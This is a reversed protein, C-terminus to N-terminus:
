DKAFMELLAEVLGPITYDRAVKDVRIGIERATAATVPGICVVKATKITKRLNEEGLIKVFNKVTSSSTFTIADVRGETLVRLNEPSVEEAVAEYLGVETVEAGCSRLVEPLIDRAGRARPLLVRSGPKVRNKLDESLGEARFEEPIVDVILGRNRLAQATAPGIAAIQLGKLDRIDKNTKGMEEFFIKVGNVSTFVLWQFSEIMELSCYLLSMDQSPVVRIAPIEIAQGGFEEIMSSLRSAQERSRTVVIRRGFLPRNEFWMLENRLRVVEGVVLIAPPKLDAKEVKDEIDALVGTVVQQDPLTGWRIVACPTESSRGHMLLNHVINSLNEVGMLFVLTGVGTAIQEWRVSSTNKGPREHGTIIAFSSTMDRHTVPIGAYAPVAVASTIGPVVEFRVGNEKLYLAEEGGRGFVFPDGGKLRVVTKGEQAKEVLLRNIEQQPLTHDSSAKGVYILEAGDRAYKLIGPSVLRDYVVVDAKELCQKGKITFLGPDGPGAGVLYVIGIGSM